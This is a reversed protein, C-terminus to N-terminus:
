CTTQLNIARLKRQVSASYVCGLTHRYYWYLANSKAMAYEAENTPNQKQIAWLRLNTHENPLPSVRYTVHDATLSNMRDYYYGNLKMNFIIPGM